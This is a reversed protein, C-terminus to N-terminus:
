ITVTVTPLSQVLRQQAEPSLKVMNGAADRTESYRGPRWLTAATQAPLSSPRLSERVFFANVGSSSAAVLTYGKRKGLAELAALSAGFYLWSPHAATRDFAPEYPITVAADPGFRWNYEVSMVAPQAVEVAEWVWYDNGDIDISLLGLEGVFGHTTLLENINERTVFAQEATLAAHWYARSDRIRAINAPDGDLVLGSWGGSLLLFRTNAERYDEVGFEVFRQNPLTTEALLRALLGDEGGQSFVSFESKALSSNETQRVEIRGLAMRLRERDEVARHLELLLGKNQEELVGLRTTLVALVADQARLHEQLATLHARLAVQSQDAVTLRAELTSQYHEQRVILETLVPSMGDLRQALETNQQLVLALREETTRLLKM